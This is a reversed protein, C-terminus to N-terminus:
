GLADLDRIATLVEEVHKNVRVKRWSRRVVGREDLLFTSREIGIFSRGYLKKPRMVDFLRCLSEDSDCALAFPLELKSRFKEHSVLSDRSIGIVITNLEALQASADRFGQAETSCGPTNDKPYFYLILRHGLFDSRRATEGETLQLTFDPLESLSTPKSM